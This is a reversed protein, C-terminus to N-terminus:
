ARRSEAEHAVSVFGEIVDAIREISSHDLEPYIPLSLIREAARETVPFSGKGRGLDEYAPQLHIPVPYHVLSSIGAESLAKQLGVRNDVQVVYLHFVPQAYPATRPIVIHHGMSELTKAYYGARDRRKQNWENLYRLKVSLVAAQISDLRRNFGKSQHVYKGVSGYNRLLRLSKAISEDSTVVVGADGFAGLNKTPYLSFAAADGISGVVHDKYRAGHAQSADEIVLLGHRRAVKMLPDMDVPHGYLHVPM